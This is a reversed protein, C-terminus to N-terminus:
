STTLSTRCPGPSCSCHGLEHYVLEQLQAATTSPDDAYSKLIWIEQWGYRALTIDDNGMGLTRDEDIRACTGVTDGDDTPPEGFQAKEAAIDDVYKMVRVDAVAFGPIPMQAGQSDALFQDRIVALSPDIDVAPEQRSATWSKCGSAAVLGLGAAVWWLSRM